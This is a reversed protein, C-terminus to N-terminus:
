DDPLLNCRRTLRIAMRNWITDRLGDCLSVTIRQFYEYDKESFRRHQEIRESLLKDVNRFAKAKFDPIVRKAIDDDYMDKVKTNAITDLRQAYRNTWDEGKGHVESCKRRFYSLDSKWEDGSRWGARRLVAYFLAANDLEDKTITTKSEEQKM